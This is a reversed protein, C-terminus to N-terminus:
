FYPNEPLALSLYRNDLYVMLDKEVFEALAAEVWAASDFHANIEKPSRADACYEYLAAPEDSYTHTRLPQHRGDDIQITTWSKKYRLFPRPRQRWRHQWIAVARFIDDYQEDPLTNAMEHEFYYSVRQLNFKDKPFLFDYCPSPVLREISQSAPDTYMPSGRDARAKVIAWPAQFHHIKPIVECQVQYDELTEGPFRLLINYLNNIGYYTAWKILELNRVGTTHKKMLKLVHTSLSEVGPQISFLGGQRMLKLQARSLSPRVEYHIRIDTNAEALRGFLKDVYEPSIINDIANFDLIGYRRSLTELQELVNEADKARFDMGSRNLGCFTCHNKMGWWCGRATEIPILVEKAGPYSGYGGEGRAYFYEDFDPVPTKNMDSFNPARGAYVIDGDNRWMLGPLGRMSEGKYLRHVMKPFSEEGDGCSIYDVQPCGRMIEEAIDDEFSAGGMIIPISPYREKLARAMAVSALTQQFVVSFGILGFRSWDVSEICFDIFSPADVERLRRLDDMTCNADQCIAELNSRYIEFYRDDDAFDGFAAKTWIWEGVMCPYVDALTENIRQGIHAGFYMFLSFTQVPIGERELTPKLLGLQFSPFRASLTPMSVLAVPKLSDSDTM